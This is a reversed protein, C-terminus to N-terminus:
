GGNTPAVAYLRWEGPVGKFETVGCDRFEIGSGAVLDRVTRSVLVEGAGAHGAVRAGIHVAIGGLKQGVLDCEGTHVGARVELGMKKASDVIACACRIGRAPGDFSAFVGDGAMDLERGRFRSLERRVTQHHAELLDRWRHDGLEAACRTSDVIDTFLVTALVRDPEPEGRIGTLFEQIEGLIEEGGRGWPLHDAGPLEVYRAGAIHKALYRGNEVHVVRDGVRHIVLTPMSLSPLVPRVDIEFALRMYAVADGPGYSEMKLRAWWDNLREDQGASPLYYKTYNSGDGWRDLITAMSEEFEARTDGWPWDEAKEEKVEAGCLILAKTREPYTAAFLVALPGGESIGFFAARESGVADLVARMDDMRDELTGFQGRDSLGMGRKDFLILRSFSALREWFRRVGPEEWWQRLNGAAGTVYVLDPPGSGLVQYATHVGGSKAYRVPPMSDPM